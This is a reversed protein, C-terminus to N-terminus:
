RHPDQKETGLTKTLIAVGKLYGSSLQTPPSMAVSRRGM